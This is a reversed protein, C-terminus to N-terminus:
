NELFKPVHDGFDFEPRPKRQSANTLDRFAETWMRCIDSRVVDKEEFFVQPITQMRKLMQILQPLGSNPIDSQDPDGSLILTSNEGIRTLVMKLQPLTCNQIEDLIIYSNDLTRGRLYAIPEIVIKGDQVAKEAGSKTLRKVVTDMFSASYPAMKEDIEGPLFGHEEGATVAPTILVLQDFQNSWVENIGYATPLFTKGTGAPGFVAVQDETKLYQLLEAQTENRPELPVSAPSLRRSKEKQRDTRAKKRESRSQKTAQAMM